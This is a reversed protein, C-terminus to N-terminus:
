VLKSKHLLAQSYELSWIYIQLAFSNNNIPQSLKTYIAPDIDPFYTATSAPKLAEVPSVRYKMRSIYLKSCLARDLCEKYVDRGGFFFINHKPDSKSLADDISSAVILKKPFSRKFDSTLVILDCGYLTSQKIGISEFTDRGMILTTDGTTVITKMLNTERPCYWPLKNNIGIIGDISVAAILSSQRIM